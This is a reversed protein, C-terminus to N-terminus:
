PAFHLDDFGIQGTPSGVSEGFKLRVAVIRTMDLGQGEGRFDRLPIRVSNWENAWGQGAGLGDRPYPDTVGGYESTNRSVTHGDADEMEVVFSLQGSLAVTGPSRTMQSVRMAVERFGTVDLPATLRETYNADTTWRMVIGREWGDGSVLTMGNMLDNGNWGFQMDRDDFMGELLDLGAAEVTGGSTSVENGDDNQYDDVWWSGADPADRLSVAVTNDVPIGVPRWGNPNRSFVERYAENGKVEWSFFSLLYTLESPHLQDRSLRNPGIGEDFSNVGDHFVNHSAGHFTAMVVDDLGVSAIRFSQCLPCDAGGTVDGDAGGNMLMYPRDGPSAKKIGDFVTPAISTIAKIDDLTYNTVTFPEAGGALRQFARVVGEGGRSHGIWGIRHPDILGMLAGDLATDRHGLLWDTNALTTRSATLIGPGTNNTHSMVVFGYSALHAGIFGYWRFDHGNGHSIVILPAPKLAEPLDTPWWIEEDLWNGGSTRAMQPTYPGPASLDKAVWFGAQAGFGDILDGPDLHGDKGWDVVVDYAVPDSNGGDTPPAWGIVRANAPNAVDVTLPETGGSVDVLTNDLAWEDPTRHAVIAVDAGLGVRDLHLTPDVLVGVREDERFLDVTRLHPLDASPEGALDPADLTALPQSAPACAGGEAVGLPTADVQGVGGRPATVLVTLPLDAETVDFPTKLPNGDVDALLFRGTVDVRVSGEGVGDLVIPRMEFRVATGADKTRRLPILPTVGPTTYPASWTPALCAPVPDGGSGDTDFKDKGRGAGGSTCALVFLLPTVRGISM